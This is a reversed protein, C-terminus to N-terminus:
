GDPCGFGGTLGYQEDHARASGEEEEEDRRNGTRLERATVVRSGLASGTGAITCGYGPLSGM